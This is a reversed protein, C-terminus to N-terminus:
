KEVVGLVDDERMMLYEKGEVKIETGARTVFFALADRGVDLGAVTDQEALPGAGFHLDVAVFQEDHLFAVDHADDLM